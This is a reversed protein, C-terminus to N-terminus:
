TRYSDPNEALGDLLDPVAEVGQAALQSRAERRVAESEAELDNLLRAVLSTEDGAQEVESDSYYALFGRWLDQMVNTYSVAALVPVLLFALLIIIRTKSFRLGRPSTVKRLHKTLEALDHDWRRDSLEYANRRALSQLKQPLESASPMAAGGVLVPVVPISRKLAAAVEMRVLDEPHDLRRQGHEDAAALWHPGIVVILVDAQGVRREIAEAYDVGPELTAIDFFVNDKGFEEIM